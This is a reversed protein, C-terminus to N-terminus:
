SDIETVENVGPGKGHLWLESHLWNLNRRVLNRFALDAPSPERADTPVPAAFMEQRVPEQEAIVTPGIVPDTAFTSNDTASLPEAAYPDTEEAM